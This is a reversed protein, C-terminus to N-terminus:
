NQRDKGNDSNNCSKQSLIKRLFILQEIVQRWEKDSGLTLILTMLCWEWGM